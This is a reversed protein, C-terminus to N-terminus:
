CGTLMSTLASKEASTITLAWVYKVRVWAEADTCYYSTLPPNWADPSRDGKSQAASEALTSLRSTDSRDPPVFSVNVAPPPRCPRPRPRM